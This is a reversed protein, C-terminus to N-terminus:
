LCVILLTSTKIKMFNNRRLAISTLFGFGMKSPLLLIKLVTGVHPMDLQNMILYPHYKEQSTNTCDWLPRSGAFAKITL